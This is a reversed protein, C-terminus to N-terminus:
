YENNNKNFITSTVVIGVVAIVAVIICVPMVVTKIIALM